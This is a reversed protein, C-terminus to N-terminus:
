KNKGHFFEASGIGPYWSEKNLIYKLEVAYSFTSTVCVGVPLNYKKFSQRICTSLGEHGATDKVFKEYNKFEDWEEARFFIARDWHGKLEEYTIDSESYEKIRQELEKAVRLVFLKEADAFDLKGNKIAADFKDLIVKNSKDINNLVKELEGQFAAENIM